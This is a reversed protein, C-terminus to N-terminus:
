VDFAFACMGTLLNVKQILLQFPKVSERIILHDCACVCVCLCVSPLLSCMCM